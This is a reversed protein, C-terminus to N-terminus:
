DWGRIDAIPRIQFSGGWTTVDAGFIDVNTKRQAIIRKDVNGTAIRTSSGTAALPSSNQHILM